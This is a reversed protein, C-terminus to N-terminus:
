VDNCDLWAAIHKGKFCHLLEIDFELTPSVKEAVLWENPCIDDVNLHLREALFAYDVKWISKSACSDRAADTGQTCRTLSHQAYV